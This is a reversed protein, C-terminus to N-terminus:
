HSMIFHPNDTLRFSSYQYLSMIKIHASLYQMFNSNVKQELELMVYGIEMRSKINYICYLTKFIHFGTLGHNKM